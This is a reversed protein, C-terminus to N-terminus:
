NSQWSPNLMRMHVWEQNGSTTTVTVKFRVLELLGENVTDSMTAGASFSQRTVTTIAGSNWSTNTAAAKDSQESNKTEVTVEVSCGASIQIIDAVMEALNGGRAFWPSYYDFGNDVLNSNLLQGFFM